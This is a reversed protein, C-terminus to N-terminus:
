TPCPFTAFDRPTALRVEHGFRGLSAATEALTNVVGNTQPFWADSVIMIRMRRRREGCGARGRMMAADHSATIIQQLIRTGARPTRQDRPSGRRRLVNEIDLRLGAPLWICIIGCRRIADRRMLAAAANAAGSSLGCCTNM